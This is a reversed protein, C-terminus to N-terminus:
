LGHGPRLHDVSLALRERTRTSVSSTILMHCSDKDSVPMYSLSSNDIGGWMRLLPLSSEVWGSAPAARGFGDEEVFQSWLTSTYSSVFSFFM